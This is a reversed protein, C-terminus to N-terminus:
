SLFALDRARPTLDNEALWADDFLRSAYRGGGDSLITVVTSREPLRLAVRAAAVVNLAASGGLFLGEHYLLYHAMEV